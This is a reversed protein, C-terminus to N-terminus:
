KLNVVHSHSIMYRDKIMINYLFNNTFKKNNGHYIVYM